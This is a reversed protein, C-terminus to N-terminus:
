PNSDSGVSFTLCMPQSVSFKVMIIYYYYLNKALIETEKTHILVAATVM